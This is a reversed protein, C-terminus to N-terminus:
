KSMSIMRYVEEEVVLAGVVINRLDLDIRVPVVLAVIKSRRMMTVTMNAKLHHITSRIMQNQNRKRVQTATKIQMVASMVKRVKVAILHYMVVQSRTATVTVTTTMITQHM